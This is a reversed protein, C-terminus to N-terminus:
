SRVQFEEEVVKAAAEAEEVKAREEDLKSKYHKMANQANLRLDVQENIQAQRMTLM